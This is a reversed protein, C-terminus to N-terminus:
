RSLNWETTASAGHTDTWTLVITAADCGPLLRVNAHTATGPEDVTACPGYDWRFTTTDGDPDSGQAELGVSAGEVEPLNAGGMVIPARNGVSSGSRAPTPPASPAATAVVPPRTPRMTAPSEAAIVPPPVDTADAAAPAEAPAPTAEITVAVARVATLGRRDTATVTIRDVIPGSPAPSFRAEGPADGAVVRGYDASYGYALAEGDPDQAVVRLQAGGDRPVSAPSLDASVIVPPRNVSASVLRLALGLLLAAALALLPPWLREANRGISPRKL